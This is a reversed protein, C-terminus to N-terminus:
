YGLSLGPEPRTNRSVVEAGRKARVPDGEIKESKTGGERARGSASPIKYTLPAEIFDTKAHNWTSAGTTYHGLM